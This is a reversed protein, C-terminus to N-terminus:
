VMNSAYLGYVMIYNSTLGGFYERGEVTPFKIKPKQAFQENKSLFPIARESKKFSHIERKTFFSSLSKSKDNASTARKFLTVHTIRERKNNLLM